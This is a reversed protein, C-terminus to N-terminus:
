CYCCLCSCVVFYLVCLLFCSVVCVGADFMIFYVFVCFLAFLGVRCVVIFVYPFVSANLLFCPFFCLDVLLLM